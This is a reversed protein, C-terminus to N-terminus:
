ALEEKIISHRQRPSRRTGFAQPSPKLAGMPLPSRPQLGRAVREVDQRVWLENEVDAHKKSLPHRPGGSLTFSNPMTHLLNVAHCQRPSLLPQFQGERYVKPIEANVYRPSVYPPLLAAKHKWQKETVCPSLVSPFRPNLEDFLALSSNTDVAIGAYRRRRPADPLSSISVTDHIARSMADLGRLTEWSAVHGQWQIGALASFFVSYTVGTHVPSVAETRLFFECALSEVQRSSRRARNMRGVIESTHLRIHLLAPMAADGDFGVDDLKRRTPSEDDGDLELRELMVGEMDRPTSNMRENWEDSRRVLFINDAAKVRSHANANPRKIEAAPV